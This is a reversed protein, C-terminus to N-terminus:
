FGGERWTRLLEKALKEDVQELGHPGVCGERPQERVGNSACLRQCVELSRYSGVLDCM